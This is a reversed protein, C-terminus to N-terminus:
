CLVKITMIPNGNYDSIHLDCVQSDRDDGGTGPLPKYGGGSSTGTPTKNVRNSGFIEKFAVEVCPSVESKGVAPDTLDKWYNNGINTLSENLSVDVHSGSSPDLTYTVRSPRGNGEVALGDPLPFDFILNKKTQKNDWTLFVNFGRVQIGLGLDTLEVEDFSAGPIGDWEAFQENILERLKFRFEAGLAAKVANYESSDEACSFEGSNSTQANILQVSATQQARGDIWDYFEQSTEFTESINNAMSELYAILSNTYDVGDRIAEQVFQPHNYTAVQLQMLRPHMGQNSHSIKFGWLVGSSENLVAAYVPTSYCAQNGTSIVQSGDTPECRLSPYSKTEVLRKAENFSCDECTHAQVNKELQTQAYSNNAFFLAGLGIACIFFPLIFNTKSM